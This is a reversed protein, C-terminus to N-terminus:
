WDQVYEKNGGSGKFNVIPKNRRTKQLLSNLIQKANKVKNKMIVEEKSLTDVTDASNSSTDDSLEVDSMNQKQKLNNVLDDYSIVEGQNEKGSNDTQTDEGEGDQNKGSPDGEKESKQDEEGSQEGEQGSKKDEEGSQEGEQGSKQDEEGSQEGEQGSKQDEEGSQEGEQGSKKDEEGSQEGEQGSKKDEEGSQEGEQGSKKDEEGSQEGEQGSKKDEEGSQEGEQGSKKDEEGSQEGEQGSKKDEEGSQEGEQGSKKGEKGSQEGEQGSKKGEKGSQEGEQGSKKGEKGSQEGEQGSKKGEKGSQEGEQGSKKDEEGSQEGEKKAEDQLRSLSIAIKLNQIADKNNSNYSLSKQFSHVADKYKQQKLYILGLHYWAEGYNSNNSFLSRQFKKKSEEYKEMQYLVLGQNFYVKFEEADISEAIHYAKLAEDYKKQHYLKNGMQVYEQLKSAYGYGLFSFLFIFISIKKFPYKVVYVIQNLFESFIFFLIVFLLFFQYIHKHHKQKKTNQSTIWRVDKIYSVLLDSTINKAHVYIGGTIASIQKLSAEDLKSLIINNNRDKKYTKSGSKDYYPIPHGITNGIGLSLISINEEKIKQAVSLLSKNQNEGDTFLVILKKGSIVKLKDSALQIADSINTGQLPTMGIEINKLFQKVSSLDFTLPCYIHATGAFVIIGINSGYLQNITTHLLQKAYEIRSPRFDDSLMSQSCDFVFFINIQDTKINVEAENIKPGLISILLLILGLFRLIFIFYKERKWSAYAPFVRSIVRSHFIKKLTNICSRVNFFILVLIVFIPLLLFFYQPYHWTIM